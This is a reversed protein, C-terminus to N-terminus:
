FTQEKTKIIKTDKTTLSEQDEASEARRQAGASRIM